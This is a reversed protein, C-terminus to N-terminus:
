GRGRTNHLLKEQMIRPLRNEPMRCIHGAWRLRQSKIFRVINKNEILRDLEHNMRLRYTGCGERIPGFM